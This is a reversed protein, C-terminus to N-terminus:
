VVSSFTLVKESSVSLNLSVSTSFLIRVEGCSPMLFELCHQAVHNGNINKMLPVIGTKLASVIM